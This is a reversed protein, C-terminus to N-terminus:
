KKITIIQNEKKRIRGSDTEYVEFGKGGYTKLWFRKTDVDQKSIKDKDVTGVIEVALPTSVLVDYSTGNDVLQCLIDDFEYVYAIDDVYLELDDNDYEVTEYRNSDFLYDIYRAYKENRTVSINKEM